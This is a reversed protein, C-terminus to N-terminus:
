SDSSAEEEFWHRQRAFPYAPLAVRRSGLDAYLSEWNVPEASVYARAAAVLHAVPDPQSIQAVPLLDKPIEPDVVGYFINEVQLSHREHGRLILELKRLLEVRNDAVIALRHSFHGRGVSATYCVDLLRQQHLASLHDTYQKVLMNLADESMASLPLLFISNSDPVEDPIRPSEELAIHANVGGLGFASVGGRRPTSSDWLVPKTNVKFPTRGFDIHPNAREFHLTPPIIGHRLTLVVKILGAMGAASELHGMNSKVSGLYCPSTNPRRSAFVQSLGEVEIPDGLATGTGHAEIYGVTAPDWAALQHARRITEAQHGPHPATMGNTRGNHNVASGKIVAYVTDGDALAKQLPKVLIVGVGEGSVFGNARHDFVKCRGDPAYARMQSMSLYHNVDLLLNVGGVLAAECEGNQISRCAMHLATLSSSCLTDVVLSPGNLSLFYSLRNALISHNNGLAAFHNAAATPAALRLIQQYHNYSCGVFVGTVSGALVKGAYGAHELAHWTTELFLRQQPDMFMAEKPSINFFRADFHDVEQLFGGWRSYSTNELGPTEDFYARWDWRDAPIECVADVGNCLLKWYTDLDPAGPFRCAMGIIAMDEVRYSDSSYRSTSSTALKMAPPPETPSDGNITPDTRGVFLRGVVEAHVTCIYNGLEAVSPYEFFLTPSLQVELDRHLAGAIEVALLSDLGLDHFSRNPPITAGDLELVRRIYGALLGRVWNRQADTEAESADEFALQPQASLAPLPEETHRTVPTATVSTKAVIVTQEIPLPNDTALSGVVAIEAFGTEQLLAQWSKVDLLPYDPRLEFDTFNWWGRTLGFTIDLWRQPRVLEVIVLAGGPVLLQRLRTVTAAIDSTVHIVNAAVIVDYTAPQEGQDTLDRQLDLTKYCIGGHGAYKQQAALLFGRSIDSFTYEIQRDALAELIYSTTGGTGAGVELVALPEGPVALESVVRAALRNYIQAFASQEYMASSAAANGGPFLLSLPDAQDSLVAALQDGCRRVLKIEHILGPYKEGLAAAAVDVGTFSPITALRYATGDSILVGDEVLMNLLRVFLKQHRAAIQLQEMLQEAAFHGHLLPNFGLAALAKVTFLTCLRDIEEAAPAMRAVGHDAALQQAFSHLLRGSDSHEEEKAFAVQTLGSRLAAELGALGEANSMPYIGRARLARLYQEEAVVGTEGWLGWNITLAPLGTRRLAHALADQVANAAVHNAQGASPQLSAMSSCIVFFDLTVNNLAQALVWTGHVKPRLVRDFRVRDMNWLMSDDLVGAAHLVGDLRGYQAIVSDVLQTMAALDSVDGSLPKVTAGLRELQRMGQVREPYRQGDVPTRNLLLLTASVQQAIWRAFELGLGAQGGSILYVGGEQLPISREGPLAVVPELVIEFRQGSHYIIWNDSSALSEPNADLEALLQEALEPVTHSATELDVALVITSSYECAVVKSVGWIAANIPNVPREPAENIAQSYSTAVAIVGPLTSAASFAQVLYLLSVAGYSLATNVEALDQPLGTPRGCSWLHVVGYLDEGDLAGVLAAYDEPEEPQVIFNKGSQEFNDGAVVKICRDGQAEFRAALEHGVGSLDAFILWTAPKRPRAAPRKTPRWCLQQLWQTVDPAAIHPRSLEQMRVGRATALVQGDESLFALDATYSGTTGVANYVGYCMLTFPLPKASFLHLEQIAVPIFAKQEKSAALVGMLAQFAGELLPMPLRYSRTTSEEAVLQALLEREGKWLRHVSCLSRGYDIGSKAIHTYLAEVDVPVTCNRRLEQLDFAIAPREEYSLKGNAYEVWPGDGNRGVIRAATRQQDAASLIVQMLATDKVVFRADLVLDAIGTPPSGTQLSGAALMVEIQAAVPLTPEGWVCYNGLSFPDAEGSLRRQFVTDELQPTVIEHDILPHVRQFTSLSQQHREARGIPFRREEFPYPPLTVLSRRYPAGFAGWDIAVGRLHLQGLTSLMVQWDPQDAYGSLSSGILCNDQRSVFRKISNGLTPRPGIEIFLHYDRELLTEVSKQFQVPELLHRVWYDSDIQEPGAFAGSLNAVLPIQPPAHDIEATIAAFEAVIPRMAPSHFANAIPLSRCSVEDEELIEMLDQLASKAGTVIVLGPNNYSAVSIADDFRALYQHVVDAAAMVALMAGDKPLREVLMARCTVLKLADALSLVGAICAAVYEGMSHGLVAAPQVGWSMWLRALAYEIAFLAPQLQWSDEPLARADIDPYLYDCLPLDLHPQLLRQCEDITAQFLPHSNYLDQGMHLYQTGQGAFVFVVPANHATATGRWVASPREGRHWSTLLAAAEADDKAVVVLREDLHSRGAAATYCIDAFAHKRAALLASMQQIRVKLARESRGSLLLVHHSRQWESSLPQMAPPRELVASANTGGFGFSSVTAFRRSSDTPWPQPAVAVQLATQELKLQPNPTRGYRQAPIYDHMMALVVKITGAVGAAAETHGINTKVSGIPISHPLEGLVSDWAGIEIADGLPTGTGHAEIYGLQWPQVGAQQLAKRLVAEQAFGNPATIGNSRGDQTLATSRVLALVRNGNALADSLRKLVLIGVGESRVYGDAAADFAKCRGDAAMMRAKSFAITIEPSLILNVGGVLAQECESNRLSQCALHLAVLSSSCATDLAISPGHLDFTYSLRNAVLSYATGTGGYQTITDDYLLELRAHDSNCIGIFVGTASGALADPSEGAHELAMWAAELVKRQQPDIHAAERPSIGFLAADFTDANTLFGGWRTATKGSVTVDSSYLAAADWRAAPVETIADEQEELLHWFSELDLAGPFNCGIGIIAIPENEQAPEETVVAPREETKGALYAALREVTPYNWVLTPSLMRGLWQELDGVMSLAVLSDLNFSDLSRRTDIESASVNMQRALWIVLWQEVDTGESAVPLPLGSQEGEWEALIPLDGALLQRRCAARRIKGSSTKPLRGAPILVVRHLAIGQCSVVAERIAALISKLDEPNGSVEQVIAPREEDGAELAFAAGCGPRLLPHCREVTLEIDEPYYNQGRIIIVDKLRGAIFLQGDYLFGLDGTRLYNRRDADSLTARFVRETERPRNWYGQGVSPGSIWIEGVTGQPCEQRSDPDVIKISQDTMSGGCGVLTLRDAGAKELLLVRRKALADRDLSLLLPTVPDTAGSVTATADSLGYSPYFSALRFGAPAFDRAFQELTQPRIPEAGNLALNWCSLDLAQRQEATTKRVCLEYAFNPGGSTTAQFRSIAELWSLPRRVFDAPSMLTAPVGQFLPHIIGLFLGLDHFFPLWSVISRCARARFGPFYRANHFVNEHSVMVGKPTGTSGSTYMLFALEEQPAPLNYPEDDLPLDDVTLWRLNALEPAHAQASDMDILAASTTLGITAGANEMISQLRPLMREMRSGGLAYAPIAVMDAYLSGFFAAIYDLGPHCAILARKGPEGTAILARAIAQARRNIERYTISVDASGEQLFTYACRDPQQAARWRLLEVLHDTGSYLMQDM